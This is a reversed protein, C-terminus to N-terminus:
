CRFFELEPSLEFLFVDQTAILCGLEDVPNSQTYGCEILLSLLVVLEAVAVVLGVVPGLQEVPVQVELGLELVLDVFVLFVV